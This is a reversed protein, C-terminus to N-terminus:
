LHQLFDAFPIAREPSACLTHSTTIIIFIHSTTCPLSHARNPVPQLSRLGPGSFFSIRSDEETITSHIPLKHLSAQSARSETHRTHHSLFLPEMYEERRSCCFFASGRARLSHASKHFMETTYSIHSAHATPHALSM